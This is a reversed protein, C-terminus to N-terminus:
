LIGGGTRIRPWILGTWGEGDRNKCITKLIIRGLPRNGQPKAVLVRYAGRREGYSSYAVVM